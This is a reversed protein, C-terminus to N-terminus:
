FNTKIKETSIGVTSIESGDITLMRVKMLFSPLYKSGLISWLNSLEHISLNVFELHIQAISHDLGPTNEKTILDNAQFFELAASLYKLSEPYNKEVFSASVLVYLNLSLPPRSTYYTNGVSQSKFNIGMITEREVNVLTLLMKNIVSTNNQENAEAPSSLVLIKEDSNFKHNIFEGMKTTLIDLTKFIM